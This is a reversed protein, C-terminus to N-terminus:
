GFAVCQGEQETPVKPTFGMERLKVVQKNIKIDIEDQQGRFVMRRVHDPLHEGFDIMKSTPVSM